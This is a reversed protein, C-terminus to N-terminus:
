KREGELKRIVTDILHNNIRLVTNIISNGPLYTANLTYAGGELKMGLKTQLYGVIEGKVVINFIRGKSTSSPLQLNDKTSKSIAAANITIANRDTALANAAALGGGLSHGVFTLESNVLNNSLIKANNVSERYQTGVGFM